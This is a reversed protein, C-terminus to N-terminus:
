ATFAELSIAVEPFNDLIQRDNTVLSVGLAQAVAVFELDYATCRSRAVLGLVEAADPAPEGELFLEARAFAATADTLSLDGRRINGALVNRFESRWLPPAVWENDTQSVRKALESFGGEIAAYVLVHTDVVIM